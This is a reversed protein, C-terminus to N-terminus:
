KLMKEIHEFLGAQIEPYTLKKPLQKKMRIKGIEFNPLNDLKDILAIYVRGYTPSPDTTVSYDFLSSISYCSAGTEEYLERKAAEDPHEGPEIHGAPIEWTKRAKHQVFIWKNNQFLSAVIVYKLLHNRKEDIKFIEISMLERFFFAGHTRPKILKLCFM